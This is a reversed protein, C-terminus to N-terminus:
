APREGFYCCFSKFRSLAFFCNLGQQINFYPHHIVPLFRITIEDM